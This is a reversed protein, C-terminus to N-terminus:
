WVQYLKRIMHYCYKILVTSVDWHKTVPVTGVTEKVQKFRHSNKKPGSTGKWGM